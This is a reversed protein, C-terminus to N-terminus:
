KQEVHKSRTNWFEELKSHNFEARININGRNFVGSIDHMYMCVCM